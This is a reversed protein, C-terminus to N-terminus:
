TFRPWRHAAPRPRPGAQSSAPLHPRAPDELEVELRALQNVTPKLWETAKNQTIKVMDSATAKDIGPTRPRAGQWAPPARWRATPPADV